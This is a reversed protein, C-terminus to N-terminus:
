SDLMTQLAHLEPQPIIFISLNNNWRSIEHQTLLTRLANKYQTITEYNEVFYEGYSNLSIITSKIKKAGRVPTKDFNIIALAQIIIESKLLQDASIHSFNVLPFTDIIKDVLIQLDTLDVPLYNKTLHLKTSKTLIGNVMMWTLLKIPDDERKIIYDKKNKITNHDHDGQFAFFYDTGSLRAVHITIDFQQMSQRSLSNIYDIKNPKKEHFTFLKRGLVAIDQETITLKRKEKSFTRLYWRLKKYTEILYEHVKTGEKLLDKHTWHRYNLYHQANDPLLGWDEMLDTTTKLHSSGDALKKQSERGELTKLFFCSRIFDDRKNVSRENQYFAVIEKAMLLYPDIAEIALAMSNEPLQEPYTVLTKIRDSFLVISQPRDSLLLELYAFKIVSKFPSDLAKNMQWLCAGFIEEKPLISIYGLDVFNNLNIKSTEPLQDVFAKYESDSLGPPILWWLPMKGAVLVHTRFLEDKLLLKIASGASEEDTRSQFSNEKTQVIDMPFFYVEHGQEQAWAEILKCKQELQALGRDGLEDLSVSVWYDCDSKDTQAITGISGITKLSHIFPKQPFPSPSGSRLATSSPFYRQFLDISMEKEPKYFHIGYCCDPENVYGPLDPANSHLLFPVIKFLFAAKSGKFNVSKQIRGNNYEIFRDIREKIHM